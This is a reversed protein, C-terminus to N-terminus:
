LKIISIECKEIESPHLYVEAGDENVVKVFKDKLKCYSLENFFNELFSEADMRKFSDTSYWQKNSYHNTIVIRSDEM